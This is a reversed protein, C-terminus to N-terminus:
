IKLLFHEVMSVVAIHHIYQILFPNFFDKWLFVKM